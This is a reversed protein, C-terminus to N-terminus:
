APCHAVVRRRGALTAPLAFVPNGDITLPPAPERTIELDLTAAHWRLGDLRLRSVGPPLRPSVLLRDPEPRLGACLHLLLRIFGTAGWSVRPQSVWRLLPGGPLTEHRERLCWAHWDAPAGPDIEQVGGEPLGDDPHYCEFFGADRVAKEALRDLEAFALDHRGHRAAGDAFLAQIQPWVLGSHRGYRARRGDDTDGAYRPYTPWLCPLGHPTLHTAALLAAPDPALDFLLAFALGMGEQRPDVGQPDRYYLFRGTAPDHLHRLIASRLREAHAVASPPPPLGLAARMAALIRHAEYYLCNTSLTRLPLGVGRPHRGRPHALPWDAICSKGGCDAYRDGYASVGDGYCAPGRFLGDEGLEEREMRALWNESAERALALFARDGTWLFHRWAGVVWLVADWYQGRPYPHGAPDRALEDLLTSRAVEPWLAPLGNWVNIAADRTWSEYTLGAHLVPSGPEALGARAPQLNGVLDGTAVRWARDLLLSDSSLTPAPFHM